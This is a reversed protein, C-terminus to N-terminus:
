SVSACCVEEIVVKVFVYKEEMKFRDLKKKKRKM